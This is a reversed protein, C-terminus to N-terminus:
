FSLLGYSKGLILVADHIDVIGDQGAHGEVLAGVDAQFKPNGILAETGAVHRLASLADSLRVAGDGDVDGSPIGAERKMDKLNGAPDATTFTIEDYTYGNLAAHWVVSDSAQDYPDFSIVSLPIVVSSGSLKATIASIKASPEIAGSITTPMPKSDARLTLEPLTTDYLINRVATTAADAAVKVSYTGQAPFTVTHSFVGTGQTYTSGSITAGGSVSITPAAVTGAAVSGTVVLSSSNTALDAAPSTIALQAYAVNANITRKETVPTVAGSATFKYSGFGSAVTMAATSWNGGTPAVVTGAANVSTLGADVSGNASAVGAARYSNDAPLAVTLGPIEPNLTVKRSLTTSNGALDTAKVTVTNLGRILTVPASFYTNNGTLTVKAGVPVAVNNVEVSSLNVDLVIGDLNQVANTTTPAGLATAVDSLFSITGTMNPPTVDVTVTVNATVVTTGAKSASATLINVGEPLTLTCSWDKKADSTTSCTGGLNSDVKVTANAVSTTGSVTQSVNNTYTGPLPALIIPTPGAVPAPDYYTFAPATSTVTGNSTKCLISNNGSVLGFSSITWSTTGTAPVDAGGNVSCSVAFAGSNTGSIAIPTTLSTPPVANITLTAGASPITGGDIALALINAPTSTSANSAYLVGGTTTKEFVVGSPHKMDATTVTAGNIRKLDYGYTPSGTTVDVVSIENRTRETIYVRSLNAGSYEFAVDTPDGLKAPLNLEPSEWMHAGISAQYTCTSGNWASFFKVMSNMTDVVVVQNSAKEYAIGMPQKFAAGTLFEGPQTRTGFAYIYAGASSYVRVTGVNVTTSTFSDGSDVTYIYGAADVTIGTPRFYAKAPAGLQAIEEGTVNPSSGLQSYFAVYAQPATMAVVLRNDALVAVASPRGLTAIFGIKNGQRDLKVIGRGWFDTVYFNGAADRAMKGPSGAFGPTYRSLATVTPATAGLAVGTLSIVVVLLSIALSIIKRGTSSVM